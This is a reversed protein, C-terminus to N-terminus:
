VADPDLVADGSACSRVGGTQRRSQELVVFVIECCELDDRAVVAYEVDMDVAPKDERLRHDAAIGVGVVDKREDRCVEAGSVDRAASSGVLVWPKPGRQLRLGDM